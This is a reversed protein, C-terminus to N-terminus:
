GKAIILAYISGAVISGVKFRHVLYGNSRPPWLCHPNLAQGLSKCMVPAAPISGWVELDRTWRRLREAVWEVYLMVFMFRTKFYSSRNASKIKYCLTVKIFFWNFICTYSFIIKCNKEKEPSRQFALQDVLKDLFLYNGRLALCRGGGLWM